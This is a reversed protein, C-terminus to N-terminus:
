KRTAYIKWGVNEGDIELSTTLILQNGTLEVEFNQGESVVINNVITYSAVVPEIPIGGPINITMSMMEGFSVTGSINPKELTVSTDASIFDMRYIDWTGILQDELTMPAVPNSDDSVCASFVLLFLIYWIKM